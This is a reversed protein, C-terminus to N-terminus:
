VSELNDEESLASVLRWDSIHQSCSAQTVESL